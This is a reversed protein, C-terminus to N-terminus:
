LAAFQRLPLRPARRAPGIGGAELLRQVRGRQGRYPELLQLMLQDDGRRAGTLAFAVMHPLHFDGISVADPDGHAVRMVEAASWAGVGPLALLRRRAAEPTLQVTAELPREHAAAFRITEARRREIGFRHFVFYPTTALTQASPPVLLHVPGPAPEGLERVLARYSRWAEMGQVKQEIVTAVLAELVAESRPLRLGAFRRHLQEVIPHRPVFAREDDLEGCLAAAGNVLKEAGPGWAEVFVQEGRQWLHETAPGDVTRAARWIGDPRFQVCPNLGSRRLPALTLELRLRRSPKFEGQADPKM